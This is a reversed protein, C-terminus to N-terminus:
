IIIEEKEKLVAAFQETPVPEFVERPTAASGRVGPCGKKLNKV